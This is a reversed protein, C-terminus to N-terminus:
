LLTTLEAAPYRGEAGGVFWSYNGSYRNLYDAAPIVRVFVPQEDPKVVLPGKQWMAAAYAPVTAVEPRDTYDLDLIRGEIQIVVHFSWENVAGATGSRAAKPRLNKDGATQISDQPVMYWVQARSLDVQAQELRRLLNFVNTPCWLSKYNAPWGHKQAENDSVFKLIANLKDDLSNSSTLAILGPPLILTSNARSAPLAVPLKSAVVKKAVPPPRRKPTKAHAFSPSFAFGLNVSLALALSIKMEARM